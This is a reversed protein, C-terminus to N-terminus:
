KLDRQLKNYFSNFFLQVRVVCATSTMEAHDTDMVMNFHMM